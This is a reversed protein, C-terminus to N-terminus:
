TVYNFRTGQQGISLRNPVTVRLIEVIDSVILVEFKQKIEKINFKMSKAVQLWWGLSKM